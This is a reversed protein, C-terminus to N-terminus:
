FFNAGFDLFYIGPVQSFIYEKVCHVSMLFLGANLMEEV